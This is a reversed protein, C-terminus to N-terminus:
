QVIGEDSEGSQDLCHKFFFLRFFYQLTAVVSTIERCRKLAGDKHLSAGILFQILPDQFQDSADARYEAKIFSWSLEQLIKYAGETDTRAIVIQLLQRALDTQEQNMSSSFSNHEPLTQLVFVFFDFIIDYYKERSQLEQPADFPHNNLEV